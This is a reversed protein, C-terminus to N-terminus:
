RPYICHRRAAVARYLRRGAWRVPRLRMAPTIWRATPLQGLAAAVGDYGGQTIGRIVVKLEQDAGAPADAHSAAEFRLRGRGDLFRLISVCRRCFGCGDDYFVVCDTM